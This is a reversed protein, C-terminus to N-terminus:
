FCLNMLTRKGERLFLDKSIALSGSFRALKGDVDFQKIGIRQITQGRWLQIYDIYGSILERNRFSAVYTACCLLLSILLHTPQRTSSFALEHALDHILAGVGVKELGAWRHDARYEAQPM